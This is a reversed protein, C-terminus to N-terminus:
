DNKNIRKTKKLVISSEPGTCFLLDLISLNPTFGHRDEFLQSYPSFQYKDIYHYKKSILTARLDKLDDIKSVLSNGDKFNITPTSYKETFNILPKIQMLKFCLKLAAHNLEFLYGFKQKFLEELDPWYYDFYPAKGYASRISELHQKQWPEEYSILVDTIKQAQHKGKKLPVSLTIIGNPNIINYCNRFSRKQYTEHKEILLEKAHIIESFLGVPGFLFSEILM